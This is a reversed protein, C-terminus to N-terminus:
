PQAELSLHHSFFPALAPDHSVLVLSSGCQASEELLLEIFLDRNHPDLASTPEDAIILAPSGILARAAAVRQQQGISLQTIPRKKLALVDLGLRELLREAEQHVSGSRTKASQSRAKSFRCPLSVNEILDLYPLLNFQQFLIGLCDARLQDLQRRSLEDMVQGAVQIQGQYGALFGGLLNLLTSKGSGSPGQIFLHEGATLELADINILQPGEPWAFRVDTLSLVSNM